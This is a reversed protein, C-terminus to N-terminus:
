VELTGTSDFFKNDEIGMKQLLTLYLNCLPKPKQYQIFQDHKFGGGALLVPLDNTKHSSGSGLPSGLFLISENLLNGSPTKTNKLKEIFAGYHAIITQEIKILQSLKSEALGHHSLSHYGGSVGDVGLGNGGQDINLTIFRTSDTYLSLYSLELMQDIIDIMTAKNPSILRPVHPKKQTAWYSKRDLRKEMDRVSTLYEELKSKDIKSSNRKLYDVHALLDDLISKEEAIVQLQRKSNGNIGFLHEFVKEPQFYQPTPAGYRNWSLTKLQSTTGTRVSLSSFRTTQGLLDAARQDVSIKNKSSTFNQYGTLFSPSAQHAKTVNKHELGRIITYDGRLHDIAKTTGKATYAKGAKDPFFEQAVLGLQLSTCVMKNPISTTILQGLSELRPLLLSIGLGNM